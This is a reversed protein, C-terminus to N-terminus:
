KLLKFNSLHEYKEYFALKIVEETSGDPLLVFDVIKYTKGIAGIKRGTFSAKIKKM